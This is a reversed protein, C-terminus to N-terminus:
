LNKFIKIGHRKAAAEMNATGKGGPFLVVADAIRAMAENRIPGAAKGKTKWEARYIEVEIGNLGAWREGIEDAGKCGGSIVKTIGVGCLFASDGPREIYDRGGAIITKM